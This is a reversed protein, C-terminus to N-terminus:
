RGVKNMDSSELTDYRKVTNKPLLSKLTLDKKPSMSLFSSKPANLHQIRKDKEQSTNIKM